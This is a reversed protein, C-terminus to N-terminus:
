QSYIVLFNRIEEVSFQSKLFNGIEHLNYSGGIKLQYGGTKGIELIVFTPCVLQNAGLESLLTIAEKRDMKGGEIWM